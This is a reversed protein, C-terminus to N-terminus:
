KMVESKAMPETYEFKKPMSILNFKHPKTGEDAKNAMAHM